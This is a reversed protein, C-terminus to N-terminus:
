NLLRFEASAFLARCFSSWAAVTAANDHTAIVRTDGNKWAGPFKGFFDFAARQEAETAPRSFVNWYAFHVRSPLEAAVSGNPGGPFAALVREALKRASEAVPGSNLLYLAQSPVNTTERAGTVLSPEPFDFVSLAEPLVDRAIPLYVSRVNLSASSNVIAAESLGRFRPGGIPGDGAKAVMSGIPAEPDLQGSASLMADRICEADLRRENMRWLQTNQPDAAFGADNHASSMAYARSTVIERVLKKVSWGGETFRTALYDLLQPNSPKAGTTGFNDPTNVIGQGTLWHWARNAFVRATLPNQESCMWEALERRGSTDKPIEPV